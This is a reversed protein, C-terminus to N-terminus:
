NTCWCGCGTKQKSPCFSRIGCGIKQWIFSLQLFHFNFNDSSDIHWYPGTAHSTLENWTVVTGLGGARRKTNDWSDTSNMM